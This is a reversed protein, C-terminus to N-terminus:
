HRQLTVEDMSDKIAIKSKLHMILLIGLSLGLDGSTLM